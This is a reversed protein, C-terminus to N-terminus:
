GAGGPTRGATRRRPARRRGDAGARYRDTPAADATTVLGAFPRARRPIIRAHDLVSIADALAGTKGATTAAATAPVHVDADLQSAPDVAGRVRDRRHRWRLQDEDREHHDGPQEDQLPDQELRRSRELPLLRFTRTGGSCTRPTTGVRSRRWATGPQAPIPRGC